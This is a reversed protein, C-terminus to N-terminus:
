LRWDAVHLRSDCVHVGLYKNPFDGNQYNLMNAYMQRKEKM